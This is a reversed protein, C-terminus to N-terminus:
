QLIGKQRLCDIVLDCAQEPSIDGTKVLISPNEPEEYPATVGTFEGIEGARAKRYLGKPDREECVELSADVFVEVFRDAGIIESAARRDDRYPSIFSTIVIMGADNFLRSVEAVRRINETRDEPSFALDRNLGHRVNDGDLVYCAHGEGILRAEVKKAITSKGSGSLGTLWVTSPKQGLLRERQEADVSSEERTINGSKPDKEDTGRIVARHKARQILMGAGVTECTMPDIVVFSGTVRNRRYEDCLLPRFVDLTVRGIQNLELTDSEKRHLDNPDTYYHLESFSGRVTRSAHKILYQRNLLLRTDAMWVLMAEVQRDVRPLNGPYVIMDGRSIDIEDELCLTVSQSPVAVDLEGDYTVISAIKSRKGSPLVVVERGKQAVGSAVAGCYGRFDLHPRSVCQVPFRFDVLNVDGGVYVGELIEMVSEGRYWPMKESREVVNDGKLASIPIFRVDSVQLRSAFAEFDARIRDFVDEAYDVLDMKNVAVVMHPVGLLSSIFAHRKTQPLVGKRADILVVAVNATSAGTAMNRTYQEHGPTDAIIFKRKPTSFYRYAVDITIGQEREARLGDTLFALELEDDSRVQRSAEKLASLHDDYVNRSDSLLRGILTSKGDDISGATTFRLLGKAEDQALFEEISQEAM